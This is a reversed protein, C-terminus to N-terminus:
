RENRRRSHSSGTFHDIFAIRQQLAATCANLRAHYATDLPRIEMLLTDESNDRYYGKRRGIATYEYKEYLAQATLNSERVELVSYESNWIIARQLMGVLLLEGLGRRRFNPHVAITSIHAEGAIIWCGGYGVVIGSLQGGLLRQLLSRIGRPAPTSDDPLELVALHSTDHNSIEFEYTKASWSIPFAARDIALVQPIDDLRMPRLIFPPPTM